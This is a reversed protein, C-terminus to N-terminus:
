KDQKDKERYYVIERLDAEAQGIKQQYFNDSWLGPATSRMNLFMTIEDNTELLLYKLQM